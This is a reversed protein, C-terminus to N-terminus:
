LAADPMALLVKGFKGPQAFFDYAAEVDELAFTQALPVTIAGRQWPGTLADRVRGIVDAKEDASRSRLTSGTLTSRTRMINLLNVDLHSGGGVVGIVVVRAFNALRDLALSLHAAGVLEVVVDVPAINMVDALSIVEDAGLEALASHHDSTRTVATVHAGVLKGIQVAASGVGGSAGSVLLRQGPELRGQLVIADFATVFAEAFGGAEDLAVNDPVEMLHAAPVLTQTAQAGGGVIATVRRGVWATDVGEGVRLVRGSLEMGPVDVPWGPPAPYLGRRQMLDAANIGASHTAVVVDGAGPEPDPRQEVRLSNEDIVVAHM